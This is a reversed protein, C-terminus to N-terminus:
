AEVEELAALRQAAADVDITGAELERLIALREGGNTESGTATHTAEAHAGAILPAPTDSGHRPARQAIRLDGSISRFSFPVAGDGVTIFHQGRGETRRSGTAEIDGTVTKATLTLGRDTAVSANGSVTQIAFPGDGGFQAEVEVDGSTTVLELSRIRGDRIELEGSVTRGTISAEGAVRIAVDGSVSDASIAGSVNTLMLEGSATRYRQPGRTGVAEVNASASEVTIRAATPVDIALEIGRGIGAFVSAWGLDLLSRERPRISLQGDTSDIILREDLDRGEGDRVTVTDGDVARLRLQGAHLRVRLEGEGGIVYQATDAGTTTTM